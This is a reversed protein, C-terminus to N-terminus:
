GVNIVGVSLEADAYNGSVSHVRIIINKGILSYDMPCNVIFTNNSIITDHNSFAGGGEVSITYDSSDSIEVQEGDGNYLEITYKASTGIRIKTRGNIAYKGNVVVPTIGPLVAETNDDIDPTETEGSEIPAIYDCILMSLSDTNKNYEGTRVSLTIVGESLGNHRDKNDVWEVEYVELIQEGTSNYIKGTALRKNVSIKRTEQDSPIYIKYGADVSRIIQNTSAKSYSGSDVVCYREIIAPSNNQFRLKLNCLWMEGTKALPDTLNVDIVLWFRGLCEIIDGINLDADPMVSIKCVSGSVAQTILIPQAIGNRQADAQYGQLSSMESALIEKQSEILADRENRSEGGYLRQEYLAWNIM